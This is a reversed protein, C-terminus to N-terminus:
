ECKFSASYYNGNLFVEQEIRRRELIGARIKDSEPLIKLINNSINKVWAERSLDEDQLLERFWDPFYGMSYSISILADFENQKLVRINSIRTIIDEANKIDEELFQESTKQAARKKAEALDKTKLNHGYYVLYTSTSSVQYPKLKCKEISKITTKIESSAKMGRNYLGIASYIEGRARLKIKDGINLIYNDYKKSKVLKNDAIILSTIDPNIDNYYKKAIKELNDGKVVTHYIWGTGKLITEQGDDKKEQSIKILRALYKAEKTLNLKNLKKQLQLVKIMIM